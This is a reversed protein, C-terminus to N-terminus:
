DKYKIYMEKLYNLYNKYKEKAVPKLSFEGETLIGSYGTLTYFQEYTRPYIESEGDAEDDDDGSSSKSSSSSNLKQRQLAYERDENAQERQAEAKEFELQEQFEQRDLADTYEKFSFDRDNEWSDVTALFAEFEADTMNALTDILYDGDKYYRNLEDLYKKYDDGDLSRLISIDDFLKESEDKYTEYARDRLDLAISNLNNLYEHYAESGANIAYSNSYGGTLASADAVTDMMAKKGNETYLERYQHYLPDANLNYEFKERNLIDNLIAEIQQSYKSEYASPAGNEWEKVKNEADIVAQSKVYEPREPLEISESFNSSSNSNTNNQNQQVNNNTNQSSANLKGWTNAGVIGDVSLGNNKQYDRVASQTKVGFIGDTDLGYGYENLKEQLRRVDDGTSGYKIISYAM